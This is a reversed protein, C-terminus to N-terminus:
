SLPVGAMGLREKIANLSSQLNAAVLAIDFARAPGQLLLGGAVLEDLSLKGDRSKDILVFLDEARDPTIELAEFFRAAEPSSVCSRFEDWSVEGSHDEDSRCFLSFARELLETQQDAKSVKMAGEVFVGTVLNLLVLVSFAVFFAFILGALPSVNETLPRGAEDWAFGGTTAKYMTDLSTFTSGFYKQLAADNKRQSDSLDGTASYDAVIQTFFVALVYLILVLLVGTWVFSGISGIILYMVKRLETVFRIVRLLRLIRLLKLIRALRLVGMDGVAPAGNRAAMMCEDVLQMVVLGLDFYNWPDRKTFFKWRHAFIRLALEITFFVGFFGDLVRIIGPEEAQRAHFDAEVGILISNLLLAVCVVYDFVNGVVAQRVHAAFRGAIRRANMERWPTSSMSTQLSSISRRSTDFVPRRDAIFRNRVTVRQRRRTIEKALRQVVRSNISCMTTDGIQSTIPEGSSTRVVPLSGMGDPLASFRKPRDRPPPPWFTTHRLSGHDRMLEMSPRCSPPSFGFDEPIAGPINPPTLDPAPPKSGSSRLEVRIGQLLSEGFSKLEARVIGQILETEDGLELRM